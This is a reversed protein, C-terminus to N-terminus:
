LTEITEDTYVIVITGDRDEIQAAEVASSGVVITGIVNSETSEDAENLILVVGEPNSASFAQSGETLSSAQISFQRQMEDDPLKYSMDLTFQGNYQETRQGSLALSVEYDQLVVDLSLAANIDLFVDENELLSTNEPHTNLGNFTHTGTTIAALDEPSLIVKIEGIDEIYSLVEGQQSYNIRGKFIDLVNTATLPNYPIYSASLEDIYDNGYTTANIIRPYSSDEFPILIDGNYDLYNGEEDINNSWSTHSAIHDIVGDQNVDTPVFKYFTFYQDDQETGYTNSVIINLQPIDIGEISVTSSTINKTYIDEVYDYEINVSSNGTSEEQYNYTTTYEGIASTITNLDDSVEVTLVNEVIAGLTINAPFSVDNGSSLLALTDPYLAPFFSVLTNSDNLAYHASMDYYQIESLAAQAANSLETTRFGYIENFEELTINEHTINRRDTDFDDSILDSLSYTSDGIILHGNSDYSTGSQSKYTFRDDIGDANTDSSIILQISAWEEDIGSWRYSKVTFEDIITTTYALSFNLGIFFGVSENTFETIRTFAWDGNVEGPTFTITQTFPNELADSTTIVATNKDESVTVHLVDAIEAGLYQYQPAEYSELENINVTLTAAIEQEDLSSFSGSLTLMEPLIFTEIERYYYNNQTSEGNVVEFGYNESLTNRIVPLLTTNVNGTFTVPNTVTDTAKQALVLELALEGSTIEGEFTDNEIDTRTATSDFTVTAHSGESLTITAGSSEISGEFNLTASLGDDALVLSVDLDVSETGSQADVTFVLGTEDVVITGTAGELSLYEEVPFSTRTGNENISEITSLFDTIEALLLFSAAEAEIMDGADSILQTYTEGQSLAQNDDTNDFLHTFLRVDNVMAKAKAVADGETVVDIETASRGDEGVNANEYAVTNEFNTELQALNNLIGETGSLSDDAAIRSAMEEAVNSTASLVGSLSLEFTDDEDENVLLAGNNEAIDTSAQLLKESLVGESGSENSFISSMIGANILGYRLEADNDEAAISEANVVSPELTSIDGAIGFNNAIISTNQQISTPTIGEKDAEILVAAIHTLASVNVTLDTGDEENLVTVSSLTFNPDQATLNINEGFATEGCGAPADCIMTTPNETDASPTLVVKIPGTYNKITISYSGDDATTINADDLEDATLEIAENDVYKFVTIVANSLVGKIAKGSITQSTEIPLPTEVTPTSSPSDSGGCAILTSAIALSLISKKLMLIDMYHSIHLL